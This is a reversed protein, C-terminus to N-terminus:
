WQDDSRQRRADCPSEEGPDCWGWVPIESEQQLVMHDGFFGPLRVAAHCLTHTCLSVALLTLCFPTRQWVNRKM